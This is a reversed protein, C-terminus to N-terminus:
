GTSTGATVGVRDTPFFWEARLDAATQVHHVPRLAAPVHRRTRPTNNSAAGGIVIVVDCVRALTVAAHQRLKTPPLGHGCLAGGVPSVAPAPPCCSARANSPSRRRHWWAFRPRERLQAVDDESLVVDFEAYDETLGRVEVHGRQCYGCSSLRGRGDALRVIRWSCWHVLHSRPCPTGPRRPRGPRTRLAHATILVAPHPRRPPNNRWAFAVPGCAPSWRENHVLDGLITLPQEASQELALAIADRVGFCM